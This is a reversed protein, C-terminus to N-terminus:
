LSYVSKKILLIFKKFWAEYKPIKLAQFLDDRKLKLQELITDYNILKNILDHNDKIIPRIKNIIAPPLNNLFLRPDIAKNRKAFDHIHKPKLGKLLGMIYNVLFNYVLKQEIPNMNTNLNSM